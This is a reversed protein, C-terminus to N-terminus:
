REVCVYSRDTSIDAGAATYPAAPSGNVIEAPPATCRCLAASAAWPPVRSPRQLRGQGVWSGSHLWLDAPRRDNTTPGCLDGGHRVPWRQSGNSLFHGVTPPCLAPAVFSRVAVEFSEAQSRVSQLMPMADSQVTMPRYSRAYWVPCQLYAPRTQHTLSSMCIQDPTTSQVGDDSLGIRHFLALQATGSRCDCHARAALLCDAWWQRSWLGCSCKTVCM